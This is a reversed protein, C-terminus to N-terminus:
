SVQPDFPRGCKKCVVLGKVEPPVQPQHSFTVEFEVASCNSCAPLTGDMNLFLARSQPTLYHAVFQELSVAQASVHQPGGLVEKVRALFSPSQAAASGKVIYDIAGENIFRQKLHVSPNGTFVIVNTVGAGSGRLRHFLHSGSKDSLGIDLIALRFSERNLLDEADGVTECVSVSYGAERFLGELRKREVANDEVILIDRM